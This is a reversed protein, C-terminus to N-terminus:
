GPAGTSCFRGHSLFYDVQEAALPSFVLGSHSLNLVLHDAIGPLRTESVSVTGDHPQELQGLVRGLGVGSAGAIVGVQHNGDWRELDRGLAQELCPGVLRAGGPLTKLRRAAASGLLPSGLCVVRGPRDNALHQLMHLIVVGGLSHGVFHLTDAEVRSVFAALRGVSADLDSLMSPYAFYHIQCGPRARQLRRGLRLMIPRSMWLGHLLVVAERSHDPAAM